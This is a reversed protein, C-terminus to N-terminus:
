KDSAAFIEWFSENYMSIYQVNKKRDHCSRFNQILCVICVIHLEIYVKYAHTM